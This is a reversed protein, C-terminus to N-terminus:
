WVVEAHTLKPAKEPANQPSGQFATCLSRDDHPKRTRQKERKKKRGNMREMRCLGPCGFLLANGSKEPKLVLCAYGFGDLNEFSCLEKYRVAEDETSCLRPETTALLGEQNATQRQKTRLARLASAATAKQDRTVCSHLYLGAM